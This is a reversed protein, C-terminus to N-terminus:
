GEALLENLEALSEVRSAISKIIMLIPVSVIPIAYAAGLQGSMSPLDLRVAHYYNLLLDVTGAANFAIVFVWFLLRVRFTILALLALVGTALDGWAAPVAFASPLSKVVGPMIFVLGFFRFSHLTAIARHADEPAMARLRPWIYASFCLAWATYGLVLHINFILDPNM